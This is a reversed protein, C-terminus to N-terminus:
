AARRVARRPADTRNPQAALAAAVGHRGLKFVDLAQRLKTSRQQLSETAHSTEEVQAANQQTVQDMQMVADNVQSIGTSQESSANAIDAMLATMKGVATLIDQMATGADNALVTGHKVKSVSEEILQRIDLLDQATLKAPTQATVNFLVAAAGLAALAIGCSTKNM